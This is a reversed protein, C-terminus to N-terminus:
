YPAFKVFDIPPLYIKKVDGIIKAKRRKKKQEDFGIRSQMCIRLEVTRLLAARVKM